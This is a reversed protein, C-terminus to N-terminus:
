QRAARKAFTKQLKANKRYEPYQPGFEVVITHGPKRSKMLIVNKRASRRGHIEAHKAFIQDVAGGEVRRILYGGPSMTFPASLTGMHDFKSGPLPSPDFWARYVFNSVAIGNIEYSDGEVADSLELAYDHGDPGDAWLNAAFDATTEALEHSGTVSVSNAGKYLTGGNALTDATFVYAAGDVHYGLAGPEDSATKFLLPFADPMNSTGIAPVKGWEPAIDRALQVGYAQVIAPMADDLGPADSENSVKVYVPTM